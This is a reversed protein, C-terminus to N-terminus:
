AARNAAGADSLHENEFRDFCHVVAAGILAAGGAMAFGLVAAAALVNPVKDGSSGYNFPEATAAFALAILFLVGAAGLLINRM